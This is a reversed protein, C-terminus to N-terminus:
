YGGTFVVCYDIFKNRSLNGNLSYVKNAWREGDPILLM